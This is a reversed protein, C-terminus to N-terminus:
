IIINSTPSNPPISILKGGRTHKEWHKIEIIDSVQLGPRCINCYNSHLVTNPKIEFGNDLKKPLIRCIVVQCKNCVLKACDRYTQWCSRCVQDPAGTYNRMIFPKGCLLCPCITGPRAPTSTDTLLLLDKYTDTAM